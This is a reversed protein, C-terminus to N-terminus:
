LRYGKALPSLSLADVRGHFGRFAFGGAPGYRDPSHSASSKISSYSPTQTGNRYPTSVGSYRRPASEVQRPLEVRELSEVWYPAGGVFLFLSLAM